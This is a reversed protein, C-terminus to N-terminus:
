VVCNGRQSAEPVFHSDCFDVDCLALAMRVRNRHVRLKNINRSRIVCGRSTQMNLTSNGVFTM